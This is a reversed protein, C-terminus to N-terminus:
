KNGGSIHVDEPWRTPHPVCRAEPPWSTSPKLISIEKDYLAIQLSGLPACWHLEPVQTSHKMRKSLSASSGSVPLRFEEVRNLQLRLRDCVEEGSM